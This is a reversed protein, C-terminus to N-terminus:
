KRTVAFSDIGVFSWRDIELLDACHTRVFARRCYDM